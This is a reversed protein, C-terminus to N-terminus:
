RDPASPGRRLRREAATPGDDHRIRARLPQQDWCDDRTDCPPVEQVAGSQRRCHRPHVHRCTKRREDHHPGEVVDTTAIQALESLAPSLEASAPAPLLVGTGVLPSGDWHLAERLALAFTRLVGRTRQFSSLNTWKAYLVGVLDPHFPYSALYRREADTSERQTLEDLKKIAEVAGVVPARFRQPDKLSDATFLRRRLIESVDDQGVPVVTAERERAFIQQFKLAITRDQQLDRQDSALLSAVLACRDTKAVAQTLYQFFDALTEYYRPDDTGRARAYILPEDILVLAAGREHVAHELLAVILPEAPPSSRETLAGEPHLSRVGEDGALQYALITWPERWTAVRGDPAKSEAGKEADIKDFALLGLRAPVFDTGAHERFERVALADPLTAPDNALHYLTILAHTKGGGFTVNIQHVAKAGKGALRLVVDRVLDRLPRTPYTLAFFRDRERYVAKGRDLAVDHLDAAFEALELEGSLLDPRLEVVRHWPTTTLTAM